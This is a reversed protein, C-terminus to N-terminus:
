KIEEKNTHQQSVPKDIAPAKETIPKEMKSESKRVFEGKENVEFSGGGTPYESM